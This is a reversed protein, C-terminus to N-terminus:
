GEPWYGPEIKPDGTHHGGTALLDLGESGAQFARVSGPAVRIADLRRIDRIQDDVAVQGSGSLVVYIEEDRHHRHGFAQRAGPRLRQLSVGQGVAGLPTRAFRAEGTEGFGFKPAMDEVEDLNVIEFGREGVPYGVGGLPELDIREFGNEAVLALVEPITRRAEENQLAADLQEQSQWQETVWVVDPDDTARNIVYLECGPTDRLARAVELLKHALADGQGPKATAKAYRAVGAM